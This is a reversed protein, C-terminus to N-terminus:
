ARAPGHLTGRGTSGQVTTTPPCLVRLGCLPKAGRHSPRAAGRRVRAPYLCPSWAAVLRRGAITFSAITVDMSIIISKLVRGARGPGAPGRPIAVTTIGCFMDLMCVDCNTPPSSLTPPSSDVGQWARRVAACPRRLQIHVTDVPCGPLDELRRSM